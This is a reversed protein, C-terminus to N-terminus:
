SRRWAEAEDLHERMRAEAVEPDHAALGEVILEHEPVAEPRLGWGVVRNVVLRLLEVQISHQIRLLRRHGSAEALLLHFEVDAESFARWDESSTCQRMSEINARLGGLQEPSVRGAALRVALVELHRRLSYIERADELTLSSVVSGRNSATVILGDQALQRIAERLPSKSIGLSNALQGENLDAGPALQGTIIM